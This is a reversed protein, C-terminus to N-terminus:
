RAQQAKLVRGITGLDKGPEAFLAHGGFHQELHQRDHRAIRCAPRGEMRHHTRGYAPDRTPRALLVESDPCKVEHHVVILHPPPLLGREPGQEWPCPAQRSQWAQESRVVRHKGLALLRSRTAPHRRYQTHRQHHQEIHQRDTRLQMGPDMTVVKQNATAADIAIVM